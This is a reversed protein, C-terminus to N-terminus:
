EAPEDLFELDCVHDRFVNLRVLRRPEADLIQRCPPNSASFRLVQSEDAGSPVVVLTCWLESYNAFNGYYDVVFLLRELKAVIDYPQNSRTVGMHCSEDKGAHYDVKGAHYDVLEVQEAWAGDGPLWLAAVVALWVAIAHRSPPM